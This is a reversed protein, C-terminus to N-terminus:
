KVNLFMDDLPDLVLGFQGSSAVLPLAMACLSAQKIKNIVHIGLDITTPNIEKNQDIPQYCPSCSTSRANISLDDHM